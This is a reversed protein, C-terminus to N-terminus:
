YEKEVIWFDDRLKECQSLAGQTSKAFHKEADEKNDYTAILFTHSEFTDHGWLEYRIPRPPKMDNRNKNINNFFM